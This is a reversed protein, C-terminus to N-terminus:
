PDIMPVQPSREHHGIASMKGAVEVLGGYKWENLTTPKEVV